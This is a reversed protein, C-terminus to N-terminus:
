ICLIIFVSPFPPALARLPIPSGAPNYDRVRCECSSLLLADTATRRLNRRIPFFFIGIYWITAASERAARFPLNRSTMPRYSGRCSGMIMAVFSVRTNWQSLFPAKGVSVTRLRKWLFPRQIL